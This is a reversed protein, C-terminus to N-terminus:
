KPPQSLLSVKPSSESLDKSSLNTIYKQAQILDDAKKTANRVFRSNNNTRHSRPIRAKRTHNHFKAHLPNPTNRKPHAPILQRPTPSSWRTQRNQNMGQSSRATQCSELSGPWAWGTLTAAWPQDHRGASDASTAALWPTPDPPLTPHHPTDYHNFLM